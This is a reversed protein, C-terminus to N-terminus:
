SPSQPPGTIRVHIAASGVTTSPDDLWRAASISGSAQWAAPTRTSRLGLPPSVTTSPGPHRIHDTIAGRGSVAGPISEIWAAM